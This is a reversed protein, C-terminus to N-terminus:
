THWATKTHKTCNRWCLTLSAAGWCRREPTNEVLTSCVTCSMWSRLLPSGRQLVPVDRIIFFIPGKLTTELLCHVLTPCCVGEKAEHFAAVMGQIQPHVSEVKELISEMRDVALKIDRQTSAKYYEFDKVIERELM